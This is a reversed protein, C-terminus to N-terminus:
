LEILDAENYHNKDLRSELQIDYKKQLYNSVFRYGFLNFFLICILIASAIKRVIVPLLIYCTLM